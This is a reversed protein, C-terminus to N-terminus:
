AVGDVVYMRAVAAGERIRRAEAYEPSRYWRSATERDPFELVVTRSDRSLSFMGTIRLGRVGFAPPHRQRESTRRRRPRRM